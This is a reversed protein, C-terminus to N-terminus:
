PLLVSTDDKGYGLNKCSNLIVNRNAEWMNTFSVWEEKSPFNSAPGSYYVYRDTGAGIGDDTDNANKSAGGNTFASTNTVQSYSPTYKFSHKKSVAIAAALAIIIILIVSIAIILSKKKWSWRRSKHEEYEEYNEKIKYDNTPSRYKTPSHHSRRKEDHHQRQRHEHRNDRDRHKHHTSSERRHRDDHDRHKRNTSSERKHHDDYSHQRLDHLSDLDYRDLYDYPTQVPAPIATTPPRYLDTSRPSEKLKHATQLIPDPQEQPTSPLRVRGQELDNDLPNSTVAINTKVPSTSSREAHREARKARRERRRARRRECDSATEEIPSTMTTICNTYLIISSCPLM